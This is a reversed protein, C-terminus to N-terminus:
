QREDTRRNAPGTGAKKNLSSVHKVSAAFVDEDREYDSSRSRNLQVWERMRPKGMPQFPVVHEKELLKRALSEPVKVGVGDGYVCAFLRGEIYYAPFGFMKGPEVGKIRGLITDLVQKHNKNYSTKNM